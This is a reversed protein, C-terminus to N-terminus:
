CHALTVLICELLIRVARKNSTDGMWQSPPPRPMQRQDRPPQEWPPRGRTGSPPPRSRHPPRDRTMPPTQRQDLPTYGLMCQPLCGGQSCFSQCVPTFVYGECVENAPPLLINVQNRRVTIIWATVMPVTSFLLAPYFRVCQTYVSRVNEDERLSMTFSGEIQNDEQLFCHVSSDPVELNRDCDSDLLHRQHHPGPDGTCGERRCTFANFGRM